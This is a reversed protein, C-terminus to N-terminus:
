VKNKFFRRFLFYFGILYDDLLSSSMSAIFHMKNNDLTKYMYTTTDNITSPWKSIYFSFVDNIFM